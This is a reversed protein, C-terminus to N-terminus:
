GGSRPTPCAMSRRHVCVGCLSQLQEDALAHYRALLDNLRPGLEPAAVEILAQEGTIFCPLLPNLACGCSTRPPCAVGGSPDPAARLSAQLRDLVEDLLYVMVDPHALPSPAPAARLLLEWRRKIRPRLGDIQRILDENM